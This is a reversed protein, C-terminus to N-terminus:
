AVWDRLLHDFDVPTRLYRRITIAPLSVQIRQLVGRIRYINIEDSLSLITHLDISGDIEIDM